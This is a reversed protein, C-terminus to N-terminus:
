HRYSLHLTLMRTNAEHISTGTGKESGVEQSEGDGENCGQVHSLTQISSIAGDSKTATKLKPKVSRTVATTPNQFKTCQTKSQKHLQDQIEAAQHIHEQQQLRAAMLALNHAAHEEQIVQSSHWPAPLDPTGPHQNKNTVHTIIHKSM